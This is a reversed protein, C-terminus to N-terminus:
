GDIKFLVKLYNYQVETLEAATEDTICVLKDRSFAYAKVSGDSFKVTINYKNERSEEQSGLAYSHYRLSENNESIKSYIKNAEQSDSIKNYYGDAKIELEVCETPRIETVSQVSGAYWEYVEPIISETNELTVAENTEGVEIKDGYFIDKAWFICLCLCLCLPVSCFIIKNRRQRRKKIGKEMRDFIEAKCEMLDRM